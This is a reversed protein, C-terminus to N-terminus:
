RGRSRSIYGEQSKALKINEEETTLSRRSGLTPRFLMLNKTFPSRVENKQERMEQMDRPTKAENRKADVKSLVHNLMARSEPDNMLRIVSDFSNFESNSGLKHKAYRARSAFNSAATILMLMNNESSRSALANLQEQLDQNSVQNYENIDAFIRESDPQQRAERCMAQYTEDQELHEFLQQGMVAVMQTVTEELTANEWNFVTREETIAVDTFVGASNRSETDRSSVKKTPRLDSIILPEEFTKPTSDGYAEKRQREGEEFLLEDLEYREQRAEKQAENTLHEVIANLLAAMELGVNNRDLNEKKRKELEKREREALIRAMFNTFEDRERLWEAHYRSVQRNKSLM